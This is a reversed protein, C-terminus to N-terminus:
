KIEEISRGIARNSQADLFKVLSGLGQRQLPIFPLIYDASMM